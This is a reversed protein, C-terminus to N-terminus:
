QVLEIQVIEAGDGARKGLKTIRTYGGKRDKYRGAIVEKLKRQVNKQKILDTVQRYSALDGKKMKTIVKEVERQLNKAKAKTTKIKEYIILSSIQNKTLAKRHAKTRGLIKKDKRHRM